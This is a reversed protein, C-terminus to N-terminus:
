QDDEEYESIKLEVRNKLATLMEIDLHEILLDLLAVEKAAEQTLYNEFTTNLLEEKLDGDKTYTNKIQEKYQDTFKDVEGVEKKILAYITKMFLDKKIVDKHEFNNEYNSEIISSIDLNDYNSIQIYSDLIWSDNRVTRTLDFFDLHFRNNISKKVESSLSTTYFQIAYKIAPVYDDNLYHLKGVIEPDKTKFYEIMETLPENEPHNFFYHTNFIADTKRIGFIFREQEIFWIVNKHKELIKKGEDSVVYFTKYSKYSTIEDDSLYRIAEEILLDKTSSKKVNYKELLVLLDSKTFYTLYENPVNERILDLGLLKAIIKKHGIEVSSSIPFFGGGTVLRDLNGKMPYNELMTQLIVIDEGNLSQKKNM